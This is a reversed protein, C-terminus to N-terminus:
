EEGKVVADSPVPQSLTELLTRLDAINVTAFLSEHYEAEEVQERVREVSGDVPKSATLAQRLEDALDRFHMAQSHFVSPMEYGESVAYGDLCEAQRNIRDAIDTVRGILDPDTVADPTTPTM